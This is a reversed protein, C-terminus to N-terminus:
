GINDTEGYNLLIALDDIEKETLPKYDELGQLESFMEPNAYAIHLACILANVQRETLTYQNM